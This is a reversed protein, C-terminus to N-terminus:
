AKPFDTSESIAKWAEVRQLDNKLLKQMIAVCDSGVSLAEPFGMAGVQGEGTVLDVLLKGLRAPDGPQNEHTSQFFGITQERVAAYDKILGEEEQEHGKAEHSSPQKSSFSEFVATRFLGPEIHCVSIGLHKVEAALSHTLGKLAAKSSDYIGAAPLFQYAAISGIMFVTGSRRARMSPLFAKTLHIPAFVNTHYQQVLQEPTTEEITGTQMYGANNVLVDVGGYHEVISNAFATVKDPPANPDFEHVEAGAAKLDSLRSASRGTAIVRHGRSLASLVIEKGIGTSCGTVLWTLARSTDVASPM